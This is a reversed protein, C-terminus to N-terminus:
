DGINGYICCQIWLYFNKYKDKWELPLRTLQRVISLISIMTRVILFLSSHYRKIYNMMKMFEERLIRILFNLSPLFKIFSDNFLLLYRWTRM